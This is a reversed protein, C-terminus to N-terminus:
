GLSTKAKTMRKVIVWGTAVVIVPLIVPILAVFTDLLGDRAQTGADVLIDQPTVTQAFAAVPVALMALVTSAIVSVRRKM